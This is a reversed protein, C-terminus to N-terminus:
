KGNGPTIPKKELVSRQLDSDAIIAVQVRRALELKEAAQKISVLRELYATRQEETALTARGDVIMKAAVGRSVESLVGARGGDSTDLSVVVPYTDVLTSEVERMKKFYQRLDM